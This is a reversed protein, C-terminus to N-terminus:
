VYHHLAHSKPRTLFLAEKPREYALVNFGFEYLWGLKYDDDVILRLVRLAWRSNLRYGTRCRCTFGQELDICDEAVKCNHRGNLCENELPCLAPTWVSYISSNSTKPGSKSCAGTKPGLCLCNLKVQSSAHYKAQDSLPLANVCLILPQPDIRVRTMKM